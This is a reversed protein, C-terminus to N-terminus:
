TTNKKQRVRMDGIIENLMTMVTDMVNKDASPNFEIVIRVGHEGIYNYREIVVQESITDPV